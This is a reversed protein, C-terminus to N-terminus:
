ERVLQAKPNEMKGIDRQGAGRKEGDGLDARGAEALKSLRAVIEPNAAAVNNKCAIDTVVNFLLPTKTNDKKRNFHPHNRFSKLPVFLKWKGSRVAQLQVGDYYYFAKYPTKAGAEGVILSRIDYGDIKRHIFNCM